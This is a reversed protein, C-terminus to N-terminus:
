ILFIVVALVVIAMWHSLIFFVGKLFFILDAFFINKPTGCFKLLKKIHAMLHFFNFIAARSM